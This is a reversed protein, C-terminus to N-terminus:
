YRLLAEAAKRAQPTITEGALMRAIEELREEKKLLQVTINTHSHVHTKNIKLHYSGQAAVQPQHTIAIVQTNKGLLALRKGVSDAVAGGIGTDIEDFIITPVSKVKSLVVRCALMFRSLEGGSAIKILPSLSQSPNTSLLFTVKDLGLRSITSDIVQEVQVKFQTKELKLPTLESLVLKELQKAAAIRASSLEQANASYQSTLQTLKQRTYLTTNQINTLLLLKEQTKTLFSPLDIITCNFKRAANRLTFLREEVETLQNQDNDIALLKTNLFLIAENIEFRAKELSELVPTFEEVSINQNNRTLIREATNISSLISHKTQLEALVANLMVILKDQNTLLIRQTILKHEEEPQPSLRELEIIIHGLYDKERESMMLQQELDILEKHASKVEQYALDVINKQETLEGFSDLLFLHYSPDLLTRHNNQGNIEILYSCIEKLTTVTIASDNIFIRNRGNQSITRKILLHTSPPIGYELLLMNLHQSHSYFEAVVDADVADQSIIDRDGKINGTLFMLADLLLSKGAGTEGTLVGFGSTFDMDLKKILAINRISLNLLMYNLLNKIVIM